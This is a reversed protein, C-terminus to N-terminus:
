PTPNIIIDISAESISIVQPIGPPTTDDVPRAPVLYSVERSFGSKNGSTDFAKLAFYYKKEPAVGKVTHTTATKSITVYYDFYDNSNEGYHLEYGALDPEVNSDWKVTVWEAYTTGGWILLVVIIFLIIKM